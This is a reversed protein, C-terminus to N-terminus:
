KNIKTKISGYIIFSRHYTMLDPFLLDNSIYYEKWHLHHEILEYVEKHIGQLKDTDERNIFQKFLDPPMVFVVLEGFSALKFFHKIADYVINDIFPAFMYTFGINWKEYLMKELKLYNIRFFNTQNIHRKAIDVVSADSDIGFMKDKNFKLSNKMYIQVACKGLYPDFLNLTKIDKGYTDCMEKLLKSVVDILDESSSLYSINMIPILTPHELLTQVYQPRYDEFKGKYVFSKSNANFVYGKINLIEILKPLSSKLRPTLSEEDITIDYDTRTIHGMFDKVIEPSLHLIDEDLYSFDGEKINYTRRNLCPSNDESQPNKLMWRSKLTEKLSMLENKTERNENRIEKNEKEIKQIAGLLMAMMVQPKKSKGDEATFLQINRHHNDQNDHEM